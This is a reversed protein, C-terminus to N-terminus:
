RQYAVFRTGAIQVLPIREALENLARVSGSHPAAYDDWVVCGGPSVMELGIQSDRRVDEYTHGDDIFVLEVVSRFPTVDFAALDARHSVIRDEYEPKGNFEQGVMGSGNSGWWGNKGSFNEEPLDITHVTAGHPAADALLVTSSGTWTGLEFITHPAKFRVLADLVLREAPPLEFGSQGVRVQATISEIGPWIDAAFRQPIAEKGGM